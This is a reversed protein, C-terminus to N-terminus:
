YGILVAAGAGLLAGYGISGTIMPNAAATSSHTTAPGAGDSTPNITTSAQPQGSTFPDETATATVTYAPAGTTATSNAVASNDPNLVNDIIHIVGNAVLINPAIVRAANVFVTENVVTITLEGGEVTTLTTGNELTSSYRVSSENVVHYGIINRLDSESLNQLESYVSRLAENTPAFITLDPTDNATEILGTANIAGRFSTLNAASATDLVSIPLTLVRDVVHIVGGTFNLDGQTVTTNQLLGSYFVTDNGVRVAEVVQGGTVNSYTSNDLLTPIFVSTNTIQDAQFSGNLTHYQLLSSLLGPDTMLADGASSNTFQTFAEDSPALITINTANSLVQLLIPNLNLFTTLNSLLPNSSLTSNLDTASQTAAYSAFGLLALYKIQM